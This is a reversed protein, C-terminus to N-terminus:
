VCISVGSGSGSRKMPIDLLDSLERLISKKEKRLHYIENEQLEITDVKKAALRDQALGLKTDLADVKVLLASARTEIATTLNDLRDAIIKNYHTSTSVLTKGAWGLHYIVGMKEDDTLAM